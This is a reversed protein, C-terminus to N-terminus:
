NVYDNVALSVSINQVLVAERIDERDQCFDSFLPFSCMCQLKYSDLSELNTFNQCKQPLSDTFFLNPFCFPPHLEQSWLPPQLPKILSFMCSSPLPIMRTEWMYILQQATDYALSTICTTVPCAYSLFIVKGHLNSYVDSMVFVM